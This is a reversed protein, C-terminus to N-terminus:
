QVEEDIIVNMMRGGLVPKGIHILAEGSAGDRLATEHPQEDSFSLRCTRGPSDQVLRRSVRSVFEPGVIDAVYTNGNLPDHAVPLHGVGVQSLKGTSM